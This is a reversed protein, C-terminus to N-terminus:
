YVDYAVPGMFDSVVVDKYSKSFVHYRDLLLKEGVSNETLVCGSSEEEVVRGGICEMDVVQCDHTCVVRQPGEDSGAQTVKGWLLAIDFNGSTYELIALIVALNNDLDGNENEIQVWVWDGPQIVSEPEKSPNV